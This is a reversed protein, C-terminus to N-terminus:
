EIQGTQPNIKFLEEDLEIIELTFSHEYGNFSILDGNNDVFKIELQSLERVPKDYFEKPTSTFTDYYISGSGSPLLIKAFIDDITNTSTNQTTGFGIMCMNMYDSEVNVPADRVRKFVHGGTGIVHNDSLLSNDELLSLNKYFSSSPVTTDNDYSSVFDTQYKQLDIFFKNSPTLPNNNTYVIQKVEYGNPNELINEKDRFQIQGGHGLYKGKILICNFTRGTEYIKRWGDVSHEVLTNAAVASTTAITTDNTFSYDVSLKQKIGDLYLEHTTHDDVTIVGSGDTETNLQNFIYVSGKSADDNNTGYGYAAILINLGDYAIPSGFQDDDVPDSHRLISIETWTTGSRKFVYAKNGSKATIVCYSTCPSLRTGGGFKDGSIQSSPVLKQQISWQTGTRYYIYATGDNSVTDDMIPAGCVIYRGKIDCASGFRASLGMDNTGDTLQAFLKAQLGWQDRGDQHKYYVYVMGCDNIESSGDWGHARNASIIMYDEHIMNKIGFQEGTGAVVNDTDNSGPYAFTKIIGWNDTGGTNKEYLYAGDKRVFSDDAGTRSHGIVLYNGSISMRRGFQLENAPPSFTQLISWTTGYRKFIYVKYGYHASAVLYDETMSIFEGFYTSSGPPDPETITHEYEYTGTSQNKYYVYVKGGIAKDISVALYNGSIDISNGYHSNNVPGGVLPEQLHQSENREGVNEKGFIATTGIQLTSSGSSLTEQRSFGTDRWYMNKTYPTDNQDYFGGTIPIDFNDTWLYQRGDQEINPYLKYFGDPTPVTQEINYSTKTTTQNLSERSTTIDINTYESYNDFSIQPISMGKMGSIYVEKQTYKNFANAGETYEADKTTIDEMMDPGQYFIKTYWEGRILINQTTLYNHRVINNDLVTPAMKVVYTGADYTQICTNQLTLTYNGYNDDGDDTILTKSTIRNRQERYYGVDGSELSIDYSNWGINIIDGVVFYDPNTVLITTANSSTTTLVLTSAYAKQVIYSNIAHDNLLRFQLVLTYSGFNDDAVDTIENVETILNMETITNQQAHNADSETHQSYIIPDIIIVGGVRFNVGHKVIISTVETTYTNTVAVKLVSYLEYKLDDTVFDKKLSDTICQTYNYDGIIRYPSTKVRMKGGQNLFGEAVSDTWDIDTLITRGPWYKQTFYNSTKPGAWLNTLVKCTGNKIGALHNTLKNDVVSNTQGDNHSSKM